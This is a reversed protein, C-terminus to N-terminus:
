EKAVDEGDNGAGEKEISNLDYYVDLWGLDISLRVGARFLHLADVENSAFTGNYVTQGANKIDLNLLPVTNKNAMNTLGYSAYLGMYVGWTNKLQYRIGVDALLSISAPLKKIEKEFNAEYTSFGHMPLDSVDYGLVGFHGTTTYQGENATYKGYLSLDLQAGAGVLFTYGKGLNTRWFFEIPVGLFGLSQHEKWGEFATTLDYRVNPNDVHTLGTTVEEFDYIASSHTTMFNLGIRFGFHPVVFRTYHISTGYGSGSKRVGHTPNYLLTSLGGDSSLGIYNGRIKVGENEQAHAGLSFLALLTLILIRKM